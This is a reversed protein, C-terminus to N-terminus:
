ERGIEKVRPQSLIVDGFKWGPTQIEVEKEENEKFESGMYNFNKSESVTITIKTGIEHTKTLGLNKFAKSIGKISLVISEVEPREPKWKERYLTNILHDSIALTDLLNSSGETNLKVFFEKRAEEQSQEQYALYDDRIIDLQESLVILADKMKNYEIIIDQDQINESSTIIKNLSARSSSLSESIRKRKGYGVYDTFVDFFQVFLKRSYVDGLKPLLRNISTTLQYDSETKLIELFHLLMFRVRIDPSTKHRQFVIKRINEAIGITGQLNRERVMHYFIDVISKSEDIVNKRQSKDEFGFEAFVTELTDPYVKSHSQKMKSLLNQFSIEPENYLVLSVSSQLAYNFGTHEFEMRKETGFIINRCVRLVDKFTNLPM